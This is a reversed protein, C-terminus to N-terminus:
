RLRCAFLVDGGEFVHVDTLPRLAADVTDTGPFSLGALGAGLIVPAALVHLCDVAGAALFQSVTKGGGEILVRSMGQARLSDVIGQPSLKGDPVELREVGADLAAIGGFVMRRAGDEARWVQADVGVTGRPDIVVRAPNNGVCHRVTLRPDDVRATGAGVVVADVLARLRHLHIMAEPGNIGRSSGTPTAIRGDLSQGLQAIVLPAGLRKARVLPDLARELPTTSRTLAQKGGARDLLNTWAGDNM